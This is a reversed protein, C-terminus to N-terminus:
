IHILSLGVGVQMMMGMMCKLDTWYKGPVTDERKKCQHQSGKKYPFM